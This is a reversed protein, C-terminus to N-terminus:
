ATNVAAEDKVVTDIAPATPSTITLAGKIVLIAVLAPEVTLVKV